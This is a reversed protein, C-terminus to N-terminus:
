YALVTDYELLRKAMEEVTVEGDITIKFDAFANTAFTVTSARNELDKLTFIKVGLERMMSLDSSAKEPDEIKKLIYIDIQDNLITLGLGMRLAEAQRDRIIVAIKKKM